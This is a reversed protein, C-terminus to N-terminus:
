GKTFDHITAEGFAQIVAQGVRLRAFEEPRLIPEWAESWGVASTVGLCRSMWDAHPDQGGGASLMVAKRQGILESMWRATKPDETGLLIKAGMHNALFSHTEAQAGEGGLGMLLTSVDQVSDVFCLGQSRAVICVNADWEPNLVWAVEDRPVVFPPTGKEYRRRMCHRAAELTWAFQWLRGPTLHVMMPYGLIGILGQEDITRPHLTTDSSLADVWPPDLFHGLSNNVNAIIGGRMRDGGGPLEQILYTMANRFRPSSEPLGRRMGAVILEACRGRRIPRGEEDTDAADDWEPNVEVEAVSEPASLVVAHVDPVTAKGLVERCVVIGAQTARKGHTEWFAHDGGKRERQGVQGVRAILEAATVASDDPHLLADLLNMRHPGDPTIEVVRSAHGVERAMGAIREADDPKVTVFLMPCGARMLEKLLYASAFTKGMGTGGM